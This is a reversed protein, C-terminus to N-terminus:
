TFFIKYKTYFFKSETHFQFDKKCNNLLSIRFKNHTKHISLRRASVCCMKKRTILINEENRYSENTSVLIYSISSSSSMGVGLKALMTLKSEILQDYRALRATLISYYFNFNRRTRLGVSSEHYSDFM